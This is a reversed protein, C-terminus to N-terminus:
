DNENGRVYQTVEAVFEDAERRSVTQRKNRGFCDKLVDIAMREHFALPPCIAKAVEWAMFATYVLTVIKIAMDVRASAKGRPTVNVTIDGM